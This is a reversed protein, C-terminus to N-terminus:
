LDEDVSSTTHDDLLANRGCDRRDKTFKNWADRKSKKFEKSFDKQDKRFNNWADKISERREKKDGIEWASKLTNKRTELAKKISSYYMEVAFIITNDRNDIANQICSINSDAALATSSFTTLFASFILLLIVKKM